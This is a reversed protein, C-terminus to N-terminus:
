SLGREFSFKTSLGGLIVDYQPARKKETIRHPILTPFLKKAPLYKLIDTVLLYFLIQLCCTVDIIKFHKKAYKEENQSM